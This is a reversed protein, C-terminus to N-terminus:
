TEDDVFLALSATFGHLSNKGGVPALEGDAVFGVAGGAVVNGEHFLAARGSERTGSVLGGM